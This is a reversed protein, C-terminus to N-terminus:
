NGIFATINIFPHPCRPICNRNAKLVAAGDDNTLRHEINFHILHHIFKSLLHEIPLNGCKRKEARLTFKEQLDKLNFNKKFINKTEFFHTGKGAKEFNFCLDIFFM